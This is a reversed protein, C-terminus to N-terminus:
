KVVSIRGLKIMRLNWELKSCSTELRDLYNGDIGQLSYKQKFVRFYNPTFLFAERNSITKRYYEQFALSKRDKFHFDFAADAVEKIKQESLIGSIKRKVNQKSLELYPLVSSEM